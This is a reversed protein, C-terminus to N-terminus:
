RSAITCFVDYPLAIYEFTVGLILQGPHLVFRSHYKLRIRDYGRSEMQHVHDRDTVDQSEVYTKRPVLISSGLRVDVSGPGIQEERLLPTILLKKAYDVERMREKIEEQNLVGM